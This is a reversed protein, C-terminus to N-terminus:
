LLFSVKGLGVPLRDSLPMNLLAGVVIFFFFITYPPWQWSSKTIIVSVRIFVRSVTRFGIQLPNPFFIIIFSFSHLSVDYVNQIRPLLPRTLCLFVAFLPCHFITSNGPYKNLFPHRRCSCFSMQSRLSCWSFGYQNIKSLKAFNVSKLM